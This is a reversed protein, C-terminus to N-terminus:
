SAIQLIQKSSDVFKDLKEKMLDVRDDLIEATKTIEEIRASINNIQEVNSISANAIEKLSEIIYRVTKEIKSEENRIIIESYNMCNEKINLGNFIALVMKECTKYGCASCNINREEQTNKQLQKYIVEKEIDRPTKLKSNELSRYIRRVSEIDLKKDYKKHLKLIEKKSRINKMDNYKKDATDINITNNGVGTGINCGFKCNLIDVLEPLEKIRESYEDIYNYVLDQGELQRVWIYDQIINVSQFVIEVTYVHRKM